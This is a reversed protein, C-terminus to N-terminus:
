NKLFFYLVFVSVAIGVVIKIVKNRKFKELQFLLEQDTPPEKSVFFPSNQGSINSEYFVNKESRDTVFTQEYLLNIDQEGYEDTPPESCELITIKEGGVEFDSRYIVRTLGDNYM